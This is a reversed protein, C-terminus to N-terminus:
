NDSSMGPRLLSMVTVVVQQPGWLGAGGWDMPLASAVDYFMDLVASAHSSDM